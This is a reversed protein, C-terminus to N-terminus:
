FKQTVYSIMENTYEVFRPDKAYAPMIKAWEKVTAPDAKLFGQNQKALEKLFESPRQKLYVTMRRHWELATSEDVVNLEEPYIVQMSELALERNVREWLIEDELTKLFLVRVNSPIKKLLSDIGSKKVFAERREDVFVHLRMGGKFANKTKRIKEPTVNKEHTEERSVSGIYRIDPFLTGGIFTIEKEKNSPNAENWLQAFYIHTAPAAARSPALFSCFIALFCLFIKM